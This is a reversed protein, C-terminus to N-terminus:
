SDLFIKMQELRLKILVHGHCPLPHCFCGLVKDDLEWLSDMLHKQERAWAEYKRLVEARDGDVGIRFPNGRKSGRGIYIDFSSYRKNVVTIM